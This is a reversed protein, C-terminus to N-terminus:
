KEAEGDQPPSAKRSGFAFVGAGLALGLLIDIAMNDIIAGVIIGVILGMPFGLAATKKM